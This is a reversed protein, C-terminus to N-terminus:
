EYFSSTDVKLEIHDPPIDFPDSVDVSVIACYPYSERTLFGIDNRLDSNSGYQLEVEVYGNIEYGIKRADLSVVTIEEIYHSDVTSHTSLEDLDQITSAILNEFVATHADDIIAEYIAERAHQAAGLLDNIAMLAESFIKKTKKTKGITTDPRVHTARNLTNLSSNLEKLYSPVDVSLENSVFNDTLGGQVIFTARQRRTVSPTDTAQKFWSAKRVEEDPALAHLLHGLIERLSSAVLNGRIPNGDDKAVRLAGELVAVVFPDGETLAVLSRIGEEIEKWRIKPM